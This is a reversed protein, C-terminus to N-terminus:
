GGGVLRREDPTLRYLSYVLENMEAEAREIKADLDQIKADLSVVQKRLTANGTKRVKILAAVLREATMKDTVTTTRSIHQWQAAYFDADAEDVFVDKVVAVGDLLFRLEGGRNGAALSAGPRLRAQIIQLDAKVSQKFSKDEETHTSTLRAELADLADRRATHLEQLGRAKKGVERKQDNTASPIPLPAIFQKNAEFYGGEKPKAIRRFVFDAVPANLIGLLFWADSKNRPIIGNVRVNNFCFEGNPHDYFVRMGPVTQAVGLKPIEQKDINQHRGFRYWQGDDFKGRERARLEKEHKKLYAWGKPFKHQMEKDLWLRPSTGSLDYPFLLYTTTSPKQYRKAEAGSVLPKMLEDEMQIEEKFPKTKLYRGPGLRELHYIHDASTILGQFIQKTLKSDGLHLRSKKLRNIFELEPRPLFNWVEAGPLEAFLIFDQAEDWNVSGIEGSPAFYCKVQESPAGHYFQLATYTISEEFVQFSKFDIWRDLSRNKLIRARLGEGYENVVWLSPAIFGM